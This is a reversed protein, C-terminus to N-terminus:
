FPLDDVSGGPAPFLDKESQAKPTETQIPQDKEEKKGGISFFEVRETYIETSYRKTKDQAEYSRTRIKGEVYLSSGKKVHKEIFEVAKGRAVINHWETRDPVVTGNPLTYGRDTTAISFTAIKGNEFERIEPDKGTYGILVVKNLSM